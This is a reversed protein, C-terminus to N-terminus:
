YRHNLCHHYKVVCENQELVSYEIFDTGVDADGLCM